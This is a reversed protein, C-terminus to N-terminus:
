TWVKNVELNLLHSFDLIHFEYFLIITTFSYSLEIIYVYYIFIIWFPNNFIWLQIKVKFKLIIITMMYINEAFLLISSWM